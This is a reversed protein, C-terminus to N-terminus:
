AAPDDSGPLNKLGLARAVCDRLKRKAHHIRTAVTNDPVGQIQAIDRLRLGEQLALHLCERQPLPLQELCAILVQAQQKRALQEYPGDAPDPLDIPDDEDDLSALPERRRLADLAKHRVIGLLWTRVSSQGAFRGAQRWVEVFAEAVADDADDDQGCVRRAFAHAAAAHRQHLQQLAHMDGRACARLLEGDDMRGRKGKIPTRNRNALM